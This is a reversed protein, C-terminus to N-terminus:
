ALAAYGHSVQCYSISLVRAKHVSQTQLNPKGIGPPFQSGRLNYKPLLHIMELEVNHIM